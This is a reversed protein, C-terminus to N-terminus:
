GMKKGLLSVLYTILLTTFDSFQQEVIPLILIRFRDSYNKKSKPQLNGRWSNTYITEPYLGTDIFLNHAYKVNCNPMSCYKEIYNGLIELLVM